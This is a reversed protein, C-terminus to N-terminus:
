GVIAHTVYHVAAAVAGAAPFTLVRTVVIKGAVCGRVASPRRTAGVGMISTTTLHTTSVENELSKVEIWYDSLDMMSRLRPMADATVQACRQLLAVRQSMEAPETGLGTLVVLDAAAGIAAMDDDMDDDPDGALNDIDERDFPTM